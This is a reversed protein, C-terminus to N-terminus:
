EKAVRNPFMDEVAAELNGVFIPYKERWSKDPEIINLHKGTTASWVNESIHFDGRYIFAVPEEYSFWITLEGVDVRSVNSAIQSLRTKM